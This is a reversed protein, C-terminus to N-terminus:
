FGFFQSDEQEDMIARMIYYDSPTTIKINAPSGEVEYLKHGYHAMLSASDIFETLGEDLAREHAERLEGLRFCQPARALQCRKRDIINDIVGDTSQVITEIAPVVTVASGHEEVCDICDSITRSDVLPRVGDHVLVVSDSPFLRAAEYVGNRISAQGSDGGPVISAIKTLGYKNIYRKLEDVWDSLCVVVIADVDPHQEFRELTYIIIPRGHLMLFQKPKSKSNMRQGTGGAFVVAINM